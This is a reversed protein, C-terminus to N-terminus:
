HISIISSKSVNQYLRTHLECVNLLTYFKNSGEPPTKQWFDSNWDRTLHNGAVTDDYRGDLLVCGETQTAERILHDENAQQLFSELFQYTYQSPDLSTYTRTKLYSYIPHFQLFEPEKRPDADPTRISPVPADEAPYARERRTTFVGDWTPSFRDQYRSRDDIGALSAM